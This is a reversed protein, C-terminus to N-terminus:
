DGKPSHLQHSLAQIEAQKREALLSNKFILNEPNGQPQAPRAVAMEFRGPGSDQNKEGAPEVSETKLGALSDKTRKAADGNVRSGVALIPPLARHVGRSVATGTRAAPHPCRRAGIGDRATPRPEPSFVGTPLRARVRTARGVAASATRAMPAASCTMAASGGAATAAPLRTPPSARMAAMTITPIAKPKASPKKTAVQTASYM